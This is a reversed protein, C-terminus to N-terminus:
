RVMDCVSVAKCGSRKNSLYQKMVGSNFASMILVTDTNNTKSLIEPPFIKMNKYTLKQKEQNKDIL